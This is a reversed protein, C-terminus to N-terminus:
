KLSDLRHQYKENRETIELVQSTVKHIKDEIEELMAEHKVRENKSGKGM